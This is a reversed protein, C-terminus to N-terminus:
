GALRGGHHAAGRATAPRTRRKRTSSCPRTMSYATPLVATSRSPGPSKRPARLPQRRRRVRPHHAGRPSDRSRPTKRLTATSSAHTPSDPPLTSRLRKWWTLADAFHRQEHAQSAKLWLAKTNSPDLALASDIASGAAGTLSGGTLSALVDAYDAWSQATMGKLAVVKALADRAAPNDRQARRLDALALWSQVDRPNAKVRQELEAASAATAAPAPAPEASAPRAETATAAAV